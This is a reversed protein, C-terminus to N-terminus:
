VGLISGVDVPFDSKSFEFSTKSEELSISSSSGASQSGKGKSRKVKVVKRVEESSEDEVPTLKDSIM